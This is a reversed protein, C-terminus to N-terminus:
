CQNSFAACTSSYLRDARRKEAELMREMVLRLDTLRVCARSAEMDVVIQARRVPQNGAAACGMKKLLNDERIACKLAGSVVNTRLRRKREIATRGEEGDDILEVELLM